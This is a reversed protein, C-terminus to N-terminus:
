SKAVSLIAAASAVKGYKNKIIARFKQGNQRTTAAISFTASTAGRINAFKASGKNAKQWQVTAGPDALYVVSFRATSRAKVSAAAPGTTIIPAFNKVTLVGAPSTAQGISNTFEARFQEGTMAGATLITLTTSNAGPVNTFTKGNDVSMQWQVEPVPSGGATATFTVKQGANVTQSMPTTTVTPASGAAPIVTLNFSIKTTPDEGQFTLAYTRATGADPIGSITSGAPDFKLGPPLSGTSQTVAYGHTTIAYSASSGVTFDPLARAVVPVSETLGNWDPDASTIPGYQIQFLIDGSPASNRGTVTIAQPTGASGPTFV